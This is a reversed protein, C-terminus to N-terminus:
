QRMEEGIEIGVVRRRAWGVETVNVRQQEEFCAVYIGMKAGRSDEEGSVKQPKSM